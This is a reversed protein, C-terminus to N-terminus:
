DEVHIDIIPETCDRRNGVIEMEMIHYLEQHCLNFYFIIGQITINMTNQM